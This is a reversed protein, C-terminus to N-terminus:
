PLLVLAHMMYDTWQQWTLIGEQSSGDEYPCWVKLGEPDADLLLMCHYIASLEGDVLMRETYLFIGSVHRDGYHSQYKLVLDKDLTVITNKAIGLDRAIELISFENTYGSQRFWSTYKRSFEDLFDTEAIDRGNRRALEILCRCANGFTNLNQM